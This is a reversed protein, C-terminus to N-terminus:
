DESAWALVPTKMKDMPYYHRTRLLAKLVTKAAKLTEKLLNSEEM